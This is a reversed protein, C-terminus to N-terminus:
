TTRRTESRAAAYRRRLDSLGCVCGLPTAEECRPAHRLFAIMEDAARLAEEHAPARAQRASPEGAGKAGVRYEFLGSEREGRSRKEVLYAGFRPKRLHRLQASISPEPDGTISAIEGVTRWRGDAMAEHVRRIQGVLRHDDLDPSYDSGDFRADLNPGPVVDFLTV